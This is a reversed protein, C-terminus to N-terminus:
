IEREAALWILAPAMRDLATEADHLFDQVERAEFECEESIMGTEIIMTLRSKAAKVKKLALWLNEQSDTLLKKREEDTM